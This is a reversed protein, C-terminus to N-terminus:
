TDAKRQPKDKQLDDEASAYVDRLLSMTQDDLQGTEQLAPSALQGYDHQFAAVNKNLPFEQFYGLNQLKQRAETERDEEEPKLFMEGEFIMEPQQGQDPPFGWRILVQNPVEVDPVVALGEANATSKIPPRGGVSLEFPANPIFRRQLDYLRFSFTIRTRECPSNTVLRHYFRCGFTDKTEEYQRREDPLRRNRRDEGDSWFRNKCGSPGEKARPCPWQKPEVTNGRRFSFVMVRRNVANEQDREEKNEQQQYKKQEQESFLMQPNFEGCGQYDGKGHSDKGKALFADPELKFPDGKGDRCHKDMYSFFLKERTQKGPKGDVTLGQDVQFGKVAERTENGMEGNIPGPSYGLDKLIIQIVKTGWKDKEHPAAYRGEQSYIDEWIETRRTLMGYVSAARRGSLAKNNEDLGVPDAHGFISLPADPHEQVLVALEAFEAAAESRIFSSGFEFRLDELKWCAIAAFPARLTNTDKDDTAAVLAPPSKVHPHTGSIGGTTASVSGTTADSM